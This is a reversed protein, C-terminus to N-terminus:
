TVVIWVALDGVTSDCIKQLDGAQKLKEEDEVEEFIANFCRPGCLPVKAERVMAESKLWEKAQPLGNLRDAQNLIHRLM